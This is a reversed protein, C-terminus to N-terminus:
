HKLKEKEICCELSLLVLDIWKKAKKPKGKKTEEDKIFHFTLQHEVQASEVSITSANSSFRQGGLAQNEFTPLTNASIWELQSWWECLQQIKFNISTYPFSYCIRDTEFNDFGEGETEFCNVKLLFNWWKLQRKMHQVDFEISM